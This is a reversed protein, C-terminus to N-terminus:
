RYLLIMDHACKINGEHTTKWSKRTYLVQAVM